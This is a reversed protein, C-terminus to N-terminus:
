SILIVRRDSVSLTFDSSKLRSAKWTAREVARQFAIRADTTKRVDATRKRCVWSSTSNFPNKAQSKPSAVSMESKVPHCNVLSFRAPASSPTLWHFGATWVRLTFPSVHNAPQCPANHLAM